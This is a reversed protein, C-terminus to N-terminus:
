SRSPAKASKVHLLSKSIAPSATKPQSPWCQFAETGAQTIVVVGGGLSPDQVEPPWRLAKTTVEFDAKNQIKLIDMYLSANWQFLTDSLSNYFKIIERNVHRFCCKIFISQINTNNLSM